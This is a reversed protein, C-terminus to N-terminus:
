LPFADLGLPPLASFAPSLSQSYNPFKILNDLSFLSLRETLEWERTGLFIFLGTREQTMM